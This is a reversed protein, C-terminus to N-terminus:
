SRRKYLGWTILSAGSLLPILALLVWPSITGTEPLESAAGLVAGAPTPTPTPLPLSDNTASAGAVAGGGSTTSATTSTSSTTNPTSTPSPSSTPSSTPTPTPTSGIGPTSTPAPSPTPTPTPTPSQNFVDIHSLAQCTSSEAGIREVTVTSTGVGSVQYCGNEYIGNGLIGTHMAGEAMNSGSKICVGTIINGGSATYSLTNENGDVTAAPNDCEAPSGEGVALINKPFTLSLILLGFLVFLFIGKKQQKSIIELM